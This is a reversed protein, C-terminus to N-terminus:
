EKRMNIDHLVGGNIDDKKPFTDKKTVKFAYYLLLLIILSSAYHSGNKRLDSLPVGGASM